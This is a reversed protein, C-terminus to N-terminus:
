AIARQYFAQMDEFWQRRSEDWAYFMHGGSFQRATLNPRIEPALKMLDALYTSAFYPTVLDFIGHVVYVQMYPNLTMGVRLDDVSGVFGQRWEGELMYKWGKFVEFNLLHYTL